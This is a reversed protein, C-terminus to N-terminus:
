LSSDACTIQVGTKMAFNGCGKEISVPEPIVTVTEQACAVVLLAAFISYLKKMNIM